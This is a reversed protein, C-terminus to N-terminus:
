KEAIGISEIVASVERTADSLKITVHTNRTNYRYFFISNSCNNIERM